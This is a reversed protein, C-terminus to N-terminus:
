GGTGRLKDILIDIVEAVRSLIFALVAWAVDVLDDLHMFAFFMAFLLGLALVSDM